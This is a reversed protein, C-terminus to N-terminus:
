RILSNFQLEALRSLSDGQLKELFSDIALDIAESSEWVSVFNSIATRSKSSLSGDLPDEVDAKLKKCYLSKASPNSSILSLLDLASQQFSQITLPCPGSPQAYWVLLYEVPGLSRTKGLLKNPSYNDSGWASLHGSPLRGTVLSQVLTETILYKADKDARQGIVCLIHLFAPYFEDGLGFCVKEMLEVRHNLTKLALCGSVLRQAASYWDPNTSLRFGSM